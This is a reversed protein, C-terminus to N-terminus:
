EMEPPKPLPMWHTVIVRFVTGPIYFGKPCGIFEYWAIKPKIYAKIMEQDMVLVAMEEEPLRDSCKIWKM